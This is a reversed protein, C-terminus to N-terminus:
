LKIFSGDDFQSDTRAYFTSRWFQTYHFRWAATIGDRVSTCFDRLYKTGKADFVEDGDMWLVFHPKIEHVFDLMRQKWILEKRFDQRALPVMVTRFRHEIGTERQARAIWENVIERTGDTSADDCIVAADCYHEM